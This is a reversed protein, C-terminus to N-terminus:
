CRRESSQWFPKQTGYVIGNEYLNKQRVLDNPNDDAVLLRQGSAKSLQLSHSSDYIYIYRHESRNTAQIVQFGDSATHDSVIEFLTEGGLDVKCSDNGMEKLSVTKAHFDITLRARTLCYGQDREPLDIVQVGLSKNLIKGEDQAWCISSSVLLALITFKSPM